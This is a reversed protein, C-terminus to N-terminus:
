LGKKANDEMIMKNLAEEASTPSDYHPCTTECEEGCSKKTYFKDLQNWIEVAIEETINHDFGAKILLNMKDQNLSTSKPLNIIVEPVIIKPAIVESTTPVLTTSPITKSWNYITPLSLKYKKALEKKDAHPFKLEELVKNKIELDISM